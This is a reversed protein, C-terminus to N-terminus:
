SMKYERLSQIFSARNPHKLISEGVLIADISRNGCFLDLSELSHIGSEAILCIDKPIHPAIQRTTNLDVKLTNLNRNNIGIMKPYARLAIELEELQHIEVLVDLGLCVAQQFLDLYLDVDLFAVILLVASAGYVKAEYLQYLDCIFDKRLIPVERPLAQQVMRLHEVSGGFFETNTLVSIGQVGADAYTKALQSPFYDMVIVGASPSKAKMEAIVSIRGDDDLIKCILSITSSVSEAEERLECLSLEKKKIKLSDLTSQKIDDLLMM